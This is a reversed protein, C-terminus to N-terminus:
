LNKPLKCGYKAFLIVNDHDIQNSADQFSQESFVGDFVDFGNSAIQCYWFDNIPYGSRDLDNRTFGRRRRFLRM